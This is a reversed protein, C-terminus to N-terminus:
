LLHTHPTEGACRMARCLLTYCVARVTPPARSGHAALRFFYAPTTKIVAHPPPLDIGYHKRGMAMERPNHTWQSM